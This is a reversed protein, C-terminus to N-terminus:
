HVQLVLFMLTGMYVSDHEGSLKLLEPLLNVSQLFKSSGDEHTPVVYYEGTQLEGDVTCEYSVFPLSPQDKVIGSSCGIMRERLEELQKVPAVRGSSLSQQIWLNHAPNAQFKKDQAPYNLNVNGEESASM